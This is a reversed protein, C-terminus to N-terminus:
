PSYLLHKINLNHTICNPYENPYHSTFILTTKDSIKDLLSFLREKSQESMGQTPEDLLLVVPSMSIARAILALRLEEESLDRLHKNLESGLGLSTLLSLVMKKEEALVPQPFNELLADLVTARRHVQLAMEPSFFGLKKKHENISFVDKVNQGLLELNNKYIQPHDGSLIGLLTSKGSGNAGTMAWHEGKRVEWNLNEIIKKEGFSVCVNKLSFLIEGVSIPEKIKKTEYINEDNAAIPIYSGELLFREDERKLNIQMEIGKQQFLKIREALFGRYEPDLGGFPDDLIWLDPEEMYNRALLLRRLEGNSLSPLKQELMLEPIGALSLAEDLLAGNTKPFPESEVFHESNLFFPNKLLFDRVSPSDEDELSIFREQWFRSLAKKIKRQLDNGFRSIKM